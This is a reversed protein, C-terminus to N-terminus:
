LHWQATPERPRSLLLKWGRHQVAQKVVQPTVRAHAHRQLRGLLPIAHKIGHLLRESAARVLQCDVLQDSLVHLHTPALAPQPPSPPPPGQGSSM